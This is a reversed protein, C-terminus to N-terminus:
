TTAILARLALLVEQRKPKQDSRRIELDCDALLFKICLKRPTPSKDKLYNNLAIKFTNCISELSPDATALFEPSNLEPYLEAVGLVSIGRMTPQVPHKKKKGEDM